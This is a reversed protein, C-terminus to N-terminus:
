EHPGLFKDGNFHIMHTPDTAIWVETEWAIDKMYKKATTKINFASVYVKGSECSGFLRELEIRRKHDVPGHSTVAEVLVLWDKERYYFIVDPMKGHNDVDISLEDALNQDYYGWKEGTDGVYILEAGPIFRPAFEEIIDKILQSHEGSSLEIAKGERLYVPVSQIERYRTYRQRLSERVGFYRQLEAEFAKGPYLRVLKLAEPEIQYAYKPSNVPRSPDDPNAVAIGAEVFQHMTQRRFTERTNPMYKAKYYDRAFDMIPTIGILPASAESWPQDPKLDLLALLTYASRDNIQERPMELAKLIEVAENIRSGISL